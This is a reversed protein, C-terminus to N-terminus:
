GIHAYTRKAWRKDIRRKRCLKAFYPYHEELFAGQGYPNDITRLWSYTTDMFQGLQFYVVRLEVTENLAESSFLDFLEAMRRVAGNDPAGESFLDSLTRQQPESDVLEVFNGSEAGAPESSAHFIYEWAQIDGEHLSERFMSILRFSNELRRQKQNGLYTKVAVFGGVVTLIFALWNRIEALVNIQLTAELRRQTM